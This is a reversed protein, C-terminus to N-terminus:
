AATRASSRSRRSATAAVSRSIRQPRPRRPRRCGTGFEPKVYEDAIIPLRRGVLPLIATRGVLHRYRDDGPHVAVATDALMTEPRVTAVVLEGGDELQYAASCRTTSRASRWRSTRSRRAAGPDWNVLYNDRYVFGKAHLDAFVKQVAMAYREDLTFREDSYDLSAGLRQFQESSPGATSGAGSGSAMVFPDRGMAERSTGEEQVRREVQKQTAIGAHDTGFVWKVRRGHLRHYRGPTDQVSGNLAHGMHLVGTVNPPPVAISFNDQPTGEPEPPVAGVRALPAHHPARGRRPRLTRDQLGSMRRSLTRLRPFRAEIASGKSRTPSTTCGDRTSRRASAVM